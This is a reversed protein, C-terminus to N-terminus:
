SQVCRPESFTKSKLLLVHHVVATKEGMFSFMPVNLSHPFCSMCTCISPIFSLFQSFALTQNRSSCCVHAYMGLHGYKWTYVHSYKRSLRHPYLSLTLPSFWHSTPRAFLNSWICIIEPKRNYQKYHQLAFLQTASLCFETKCLSCQVYWVFVRQLSPFTSASQFWSIYIKYLSHRSSGVKEKNLTIFDAVGWWIACMSEVRATQGLINVAAWTYKTVWKLM